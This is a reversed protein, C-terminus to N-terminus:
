LEKSFANANVCAVPAAAFGVDVAGVGAVQEFRIKGFVVREPRGVHALSIRRLCSPEFAKKVVEEGVIAVARVDGQSAM